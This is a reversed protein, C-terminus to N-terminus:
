TIRARFAGLGLTSGKGVSLYQGMLFLHQLEPPCQEITLCGVLGNLAVTKKQRASYRMASARTLLSTFSVERAATLLPDVIEPYARDGFFNALNNLRRLLAATLDRPTPRYNIRGRTVLRLPSTFELECDAPSQRPKALESLARSSWIPQYHRTLDEWSIIDTGLNDAVHTIEATGRTGPRAS